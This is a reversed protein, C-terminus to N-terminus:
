DQMRVACEEDILEGPCHQRVKLLYKVSDLLVELRQIHHRRSQEKAPVV